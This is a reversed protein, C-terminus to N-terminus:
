DASDGDLDKVIREKLVGEYFKEWCDLIERCKNKGMKLNFAMYCVLVEESIGKKKMFDLSEGLHKLRKNFENITIDIDTM